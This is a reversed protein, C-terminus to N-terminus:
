RSSLPIEPYPSVQGPKKFPKDRGIKWAKIQEQELYLEGKPSPDSYIVLDLLAKIKPEVAEASDAQSLDRPLDFLSGSVNEGDPPNKEKLLRKDEVTVKLTRIEVLNPLKEIQSIFDVINLYDGYLELKLPLELYSKKDVIGLPELNNVVVKSGAAKLGILVMASGSSFDGALLQKYKNLQKRTEEYEAIEGKEQSLIKEAQELQSRKDLLEEHLTAYASLQPGLMLYYVGTLLAVLGLIELLIIGRRSLHRFM